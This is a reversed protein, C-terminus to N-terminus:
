LRRWCAPCLAALCACRRGKPGTQPLPEGPGRGEGEEGGGRGARVEMMQLLKESRRHERAAAAAGSGGGGAATFESAATESGCSGESVLGAGGSGRDGRRAPPAPPAPCPGLASSRDGAAREQALPASAGPWAALAAAAAAALAPPLAAAAAQAAAPIRLLTLQPAAPEAGAAPAPAPRRAPGLRAEFSELQQLFAEAEADDEELLWEQPDAGGAAAPGSSPGAAAAPAAACTAAQAAAAGSASSQAASPADGPRSHARHGQAEARAEATACQLDQDPKPPQQPSAPPPQTPAPPQRPTAPLQRPPAPPQQPAPLRLPVQGQARSPPAPAASSSLLQQPPPLQGLQPPPQGPPPDAQQAQQQQRGGHQQAPQRAVQAERQHQRQRTLHRLQQSARRCRWACQLKLAAAEATAAQRQCYQQHVVFQECAGGAAGSSSCRQQSCDVLQQLHLQALQLCAGPHLAEKDMQLLAARQCQLGAASSGPSASASDAAQQQQGAAEYGELLQRIAPCEGALGAAAQAQSSRVAPAAARPVLASLADAEAAQRHLLQHRAVPGRWALECRELWDGEEAAPAAGAGSSSRSRWSRPGAAAPLQLAFSGAGCASRLVCGAGGHALAALRQFLQHPLWTRRFCRGPLPAEAEGAGQARRQARTAVQRSGGGAPGRFLDLAAGPQTRLWRLAGAALVPSRCTAEALAARMSRRPLPAHDLEALWPLAAQVAERHGELSCLPNDSIQLSALSALPSLCALHQPDALANFSLALSTLLACGTLPALRSICNDQLNLARLHPLGPLPGLTRIQNADLALSSLLPLHLDPPLQQIANSGARLQQLLPCCQLPRLCLLANRSVDLSRLAVLGELGALSTLGNGSLDLVQLL